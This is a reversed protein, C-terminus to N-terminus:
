FGNITNAKDVLEQLKGSLYPGPCATAAYMSHWTLNKGKVLKGLGNRRAIDAVLTVLTQFTTDSVPWEPAGGSNSTEITVARCNAEWNGNTWAVDSEHVYQGINTESVGYHSSGKRGERQWLAGLADITLISACHHITIESITGGQAKRDKTYNGEYAPIFKTVLKSDPVNSVEGSDSGDSGTGPELITFMQEEEGTYASWKLTDNDHTGTYVVCNKVYTYPLYNNSERTDFAFQLVKMGPFGSMQLLDKVEKTLFGLDEAIIHPDGFRDKIANIFDKGPGQRWCGNEATKDKAPIAYYSEFGRFHDIRVYDFLEFSMSLRELWWSYGQEALINWRYTPNGWLQGTAAFADPPCGAVETPHGYTDLNFYEQHAWVDASDLAVYIPIDGVIQVDKANAYQKLNEWQEFFMKQLFVYFLIDDHYDRDAKALAEFNRNRLLEPWEQWSKGMQSDKIAMFLAYDHAWANEKIFENLSQKMPYRQYAKRLLSFRNDYLIKYEIKKSTYEWQIAACEDKTLLKQDCLLELDIFYPNGAFASFSQYPSDGYSTPGVPLVQWVKQHADNLFDVWRYAARGLTGIGYESPLSFIPLLIGAKRSM